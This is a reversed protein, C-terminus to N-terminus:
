ANPRQVLAQFEPLRKLFTRGVYPCSPIVTRGQEKAYAFGARVLQEAIGRGRAAEPVYTHFFDLVRGQEKYRLYAEVGGVVAVFRHHDRDHVIELPTAPM